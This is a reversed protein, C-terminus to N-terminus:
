ATTVRPKNTLQCRTLVVDLQYTTAVTINQPGISDPSLSVAVNSVSLNPLMPRSGGAKDGFVVINKIATIFADPNGADFTMRSGLEAANNVSTLLVNYSYFAYGFEFLGWFVIWIVAWGLAFEILATGRRSRCKIPPTLM